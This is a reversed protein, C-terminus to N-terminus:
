TVIKAHGVDCGIKADFHEEEPAQPFHDAKSLFNDFHGPSRRQVIQKPPVRGAEWLQSLKTGREHSRSILLKGGPVSGERGIVIDSKKRRHTSTLASGSHIWTGFLIAKFQEVARDVHRRDNPLDACILISRNHGEVTKDAVFGM